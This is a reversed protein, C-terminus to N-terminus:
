MYKLCYMSETKGRPGVREGLIGSNGDIIKGKRVVRRMEKRGEKRMEKREGRRM